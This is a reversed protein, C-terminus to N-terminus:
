LRLVASNTPEPESASEPCLMITLEVNRVTPLHRALYHQYAFALAPAINVIGMIALLLQLRHVRRSLGIVTIM